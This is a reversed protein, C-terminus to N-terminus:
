ACVATGSFGCPRANDDREGNRGYLDVGAFLDITRIAAVVDLPEKFKHM